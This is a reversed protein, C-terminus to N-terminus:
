HTNNFNNNNSTNNNNSVNNNYIKTTMTTPLCTNGYM